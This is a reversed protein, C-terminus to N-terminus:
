ADSVSSPRARVRAYQATVVDVKMGRRNAVVGSRRWGPEPLTAHLRARRWRPWSTMWGRTSSTWRIRLEELQAIRRDVAECGKVREARVAEVQGYVTEIQMRFSEDVADRFGVLGQHAQAATAGGFTGEDASQGKYITEGIKGAQEHAQEGLQVAFQEAVKSRIGRNLRERNQHMNIVAYAIAVPLIFLM